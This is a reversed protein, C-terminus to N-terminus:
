RTWPKEEKRRRIAARTFEFLERDQREDWVMPLRGADLGVLSGKGVSQRLGVETGYLLVPPGALRLQAELARRLREKDNEAIFLFRDMDHNDLFSLMLFSSPFQQLHERLFVHLEDETMRARAYTDRLGAAAHFDLTGDMRGIYQRQVYPPEVLEGFCFADEKAEKCATYFDLWFGPGPGVAHDLRFGDVDFERLWYCAADIMWRRAAPHALNVQPMTAVGFYTRYGAPSDDFTFWDRYPSRPHSQADAFIPHRNSIHNCVFDLVVRLGRDHAAQVLQRLAADGGRRPEVHELDTADYGHPTPSPFIPTLWLCTAGLNVIHDLRELVGWLTGGFFGRLDSTQLWSKGRGPDFRDVFVQYVVSEVAWDPPRLRDAAVDFVTGPRREGRTSDSPPERHFHARAAADTSAHVDPWDAFTEPGDDRWAGVRYRLRQGEALPPLSAEWRSVYGWVLVDWRSETCQLPLAHGRVATGRSGDPESGDLTYYVAADSPSVDPGSTVTLRLPQGPLPDPPDTHYGHHLGRHAARYHVLRLEDTSLTGFILDSM